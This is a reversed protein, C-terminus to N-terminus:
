GPGSSEAEFRWFASPALIPIGDFEDLVLLDRDGTILCSCRGARAAALVWDDDSDRCVPPDLASPEVIGMRSRVLALAEAAAGPPVRFKGVLKAEFEALIFRSGVIEHEIACHELLEHCVGRSVFVSILVNTDLLLRM